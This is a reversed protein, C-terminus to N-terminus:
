LLGFWAFRKSNTKDKLSRKLNSEVNQKNEQMKVRFFLKLFFRSLFFVFLEHSVFKMVFYLTLGFGSFILNLM